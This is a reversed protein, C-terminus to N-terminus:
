CSQAFVELRIQLQVFIESFSPIHALSCVILNQHRDPYCIRICIRIAVGTLRAKASTHLTGTSRTITVIATM